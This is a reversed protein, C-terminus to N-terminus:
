QLWGGVAQLPEPDGSATVWAAIARRAAPEVAAPTAARSEFGTAGQVMPARTYGLVVFDHHLERGANEGRGVATKLDFGLLAVHLDLSGGPTTTPAFRARVLQNDVDIEMAGVESQDLNLIPVTFWSRWEQGAVVWGPTYVSKLRGFRAYERQREGYDAKAFRDPWGIYDWYDVHFALPVVDRWLRADDKFRSIWEDAPPCSSCGESTYLELLNVRKSSSAFHQPEAAMASGALLAAFLGLLTRSIM